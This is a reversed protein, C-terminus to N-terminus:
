DRGCGFFHDDEKVKKATTFGGAGYVIPPRSKRHRYKMQMLLGRSIKRTNYREWKKKVEVSGLSNKNWTTEMMYRGNM